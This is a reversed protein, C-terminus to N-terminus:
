QLSLRRTRKVLVRTSLTLYRPGFGPPAAELQEFCLSVRPLNRTCKKQKEWRQSVHAGPTVARSSPVSAYIDVTADADRKRKSSGGKKVESATSKSKTSKGASQKTASAQLATTDQAM